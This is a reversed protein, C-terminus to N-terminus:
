IAEESEIDVDVYDLTKLIVAVSPEVDRMSRNVRFSRFRRPLKALEPDLFHHLLPKGVGIEKDNYKLVVGDKAYDAAIAKWEDLLAVARRLVSARLAEASSPDDSLRPSTRYSRDALHEAFRDLEDRTSLIEAAGRSPAMRDYGHRVMSVLAGALARDLARPSFPTVSTAEVGRYFSAHFSEFREYHSRDRPKHVNLLTVILGPRNPDRGVRSTAQIYEARTKPQGYVVMLGLRSIDIGVSIMNTAIATDVRLPKSFDIALRRKAKSIKGMDVRSTLEVVEYEIERNAFISGKEGVRKRSGYNSLRSSVEDEIIRRSGGLERLSNYYGLLTMYPDAPNNDIKSRKAEIYAKQAAAMLALFVRLMMVKPSRGPAAIGVYVRPDTIERRHTRAFFSDRRDPGPPPFVDIERRDFLARIQSEARRVTATSAIIKPRIRRAGDMRESLCDFASEYLGVITGLPGSILHLEDQIILDPPSLPEPLREGRNRECPGYFGQKDFRDVRGFFSGVEGIWPAAAFKDVTAIMFCPLRRYISEDVTLIPLPRNQSFVCNPKSCFIYLDTPHDGDPHLQFSNGSLKDGCWPCEEIPAPIQNSGSDRKYALVKSRASDPNNDGKEGMHNPTAGQGVWLGIEFPRDGLMAPNKIRELELACILTSARGLQDLTLLRLTYRMLVCLGASAIGPRSLRRFVLAFAAIGLYAETKGGGTPFFLLDVTERDDCKPDIISKINMLIFALQFPRWSPNPISAEEMKRMTGQRRRTSIAMVRNAIRFAELARDDSLAEIGEDIRKLARRARDLLECATKMRDSTLGVGAIMAEQREIWGRYSATFSGFASRVESYDRIAAIREMELIVGDIPAPAVFEVEAQPIWCTSASRCFGDEGIRAHTSVNHGVAYEYTDRYQLDGVREDWDISAGGRIDPRSIFPHESEVTLEAQFLFARDRLDESSPDRGNVLFVSVSRSGGPVLGEIHDISRTSVVIEVGPESAIPFSRLKWEDPDKPLVVVVTERRPTRKWRRRGDSAVEKDESESRDDSGDIPEDVEDVVRYDGWSATVELTETRSPVIVSLGISSPFFTRRPASSDPPTSDDNATAQDLTEDSSVDSRQEEGAKRPALFGTLYWRTPSQSLVENAHEGEFDPGVLDLRLADILKSRVEGSRM